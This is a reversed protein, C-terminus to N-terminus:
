GNKEGGGRTLKEFVEERKFREIRRSREDRVPACVAKYECFECADYSGKAPQAAIDGERLSHAMDVVAKNIQRMIAGMEAVTALAEVSKPQDDKMVVPIYLGKADQEMGFIVQLDDLVLGNMQLKKMKEKELKNLNEDRDLSMASLTSPLYLVGAPVIKGYKSAGDAWLAELYILMQLNLGYLVDSLNFKKAGTKYDVVRVYSQGDHQMVDVRDIKGEVVISSGDPLDLKLPKARSKESLELEFDRPVFKSQALESAMHRILPVAAKAVREFLYKFRQTKDTWGGLNKQVYESLIDQVAELVQTESFDLLEEVEHKRLIKEFIFHIINGYELANFQAKKREKALLGYKCFYAFKCLYFKEVQSASVTLDKGFLENIRQSDNLKFPAKSTVKEISAIKDKYAVEKEFYRKLTQSFRSNDNWHEACVEFAAQKTWIEDELCWSAGNLCEVKPLLFKVERVISSASKAGGLTTASSWTIFLKDSPMTVTKYALFRENLTLGELSDYLPLGMLILQRRQADSFVGTSVPVRPFEGEVAGLLFVVKAGSVRARDVTGVTVEDVCHPAFAIDCSTVALKLLKSFRKVSLKKERLIISMRDFIDMLLSWLRVQENALEQQNAAKLEECFTQLTKTIGIDELFEYLARVIAEGAANSIKERLNVLPLIINERLKNLKFLKEKATDSMKSYGDPNATFEMLWRKGSISWFLIYNELKFIEDLNFGTLGTKLYKFIYESSFNSNLIELVMLVLQMLPKADIEERRDMFYPIEFKELTSDIIGRYVEENRTIIAFDGYKHGDDQVLRKITRCIFEAEDYKSNGCFIAVDDVKRLFEHKEARFIQAELHKLGESTFRKQDTLYLPTKVKVFNRKAISLIRSAVRNVAAFLDFSEDFSDIRDTCLAIYCAESQRLIVEIVALQQMTFGDFGDFFVTYGNFFNNQVLAQALRTLDDLPDIYVKSLHAEYAEFILVSEKIKGKLGPEEVRALVEQLANCNVNCMKFESMASIMMEIFEPKDAQDSYIKLEDAVDEIALSMLLNRDAKNIRTGAMAGFERSILDVLRTFTMVQVKSAKQAGLADLIAKETELSSQEPVILMLKGTNKHVAELILEQVKTTKGFGARGFIFQLM